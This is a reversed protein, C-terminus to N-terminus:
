NNCRLEFQARAHTRRLCCTGKRLAHLECDRPLVAVDGALTHEADLWTWGAVMIAGSFEHAFADDCDIRSVKITSSGSTTAARRACLVVMSLACGPTAVDSKCLVAVSLAHETTAVGGECDVVSLAHETDANDVCFVVVSQARETTAAGGACM